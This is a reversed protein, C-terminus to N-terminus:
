FDYGFLEIDKLYRERVLERTEGDYAERYSRGGSTTKLSHNSLKAASVGVDSCLRAFAHDIEELKSVDDVLLQEDDYLFRHQSLWHRDAVADRGDDSECLWRVFEGFPM